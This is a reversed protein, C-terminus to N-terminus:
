YIESPGFNDGSLAFQEDLIERVLWCGALPPRRQQELVIRLNHERPPPTSFPIDARLHGSAYRDGLAREFASVRLSALAGRMPPKAPFVTTNSTIEVSSCRVLAAFGPINAYEAFREPTRAGQRGTVSARCEFTMFAFCRALGSGVSPVDNYQLGRLVALAVGEPPLEPSPINPLSLASLSQFEDPEAQLVSRQRTSRSLSARASRRSYDSRAFHQFDTGALWCIVGLTCAHM